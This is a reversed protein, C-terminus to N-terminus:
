EVNGEPDTKILWLDSSGGGYSTEGVMIFGDDTTQKVCYTGNYESDGYTKNWIENGNPDTKLLWADSSGSAYTKGTIIYCEDRTQQVSYGFESVGYLNEWLKNGNPDTKILWLSSPVYTSTSGVLIFGGDATQQVANSYEFENSGWNQQWLQNGNQDTKVLLVDFINGGPVYSYGSIIYGGDKCQQVDMGYGSQSGALIQNWVENGLSDTKILWVNGAQQYSKTHGTIIYGGDRTQKVSKSLDEETGGYTRMWEEDGNKDTKFLWIDRDGAGYNETLGSVIYGGDATQQVSEAWDLEVDGYTRMWEENGYHDFKVLWADYSGM